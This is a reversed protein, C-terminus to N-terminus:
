HTVGQPDDRETTDALDALVHEREFLAVVDDDDVRAEHERVLLHQADIEDDGVDGIQLLVLLLHAADDERVRM